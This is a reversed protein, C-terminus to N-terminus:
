SVSIRSLHELRCVRDSKGFESLTTFIQFQWASVLTPGQGGARVSNSTSPQGSMLSKGSSGLESVLKCMKLHAPSVAKGRRASESPSNITVFHGPIRSSGVSGRESQSNTTCLEGPTALTGCNGSEVRSSLM